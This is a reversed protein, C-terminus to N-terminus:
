PTPLPFAYHEKKNGSIVEVVWELPKCADQLDRGIKALYPEGARSLLSPKPLPLQVASQQPPPVAQLRPVAAVLAKAPLLEDEGVGELHQKIRSLRNRLVLRVKGAETAESLLETQEPLVAITIKNNDSTRMRTSLTAEKTVCMLVRAAQALTRTYKKGDKSTTVVVDVLDGPYVNHDLLADDDLRLTIAREHTEFNLSLTDKGKLLSSTLIPEGTPIYLSTIRGVAESSSTMMEPSWYQKPIEIYHLTTFNLRCGPALDSAAGVVRVVQKEPPKTMARALGAIVMVVAALLLIVTIPNSGKQQPPPAVRNRSLFPTVDPAATPM